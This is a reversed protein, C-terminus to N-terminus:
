KDRRITKFIYKNTAWEDVGAERSMQVLSKIAKCRGKAEAMIAKCSPQAKWAECVAVVEPTIPHKQRDTQKERQKQKKVGEQISRARERALMIKLKRQRGWLYGNDVNANAAQNIQL